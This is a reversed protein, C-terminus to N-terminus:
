RSSATAQKAGMTASPVPLGPLLPLFIEEICCCNGHGDDLLLDHPRTPDILECHGVLSLSRSLHWFNLILFPLLALLEVLKVLTRSLMLTPMMMDFRFVQRVENLLYFWIRQIAFCGDGDSPRRHWGDNM